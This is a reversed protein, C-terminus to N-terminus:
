ASRLGGGAEEEEGEGKQDPSPSDSEAFSFFLLGTVIQDISRDLAAYGGARRSRRARGRKIPLPRILNLSRSFLLGTVIRDISASSAEGARTRTKGV